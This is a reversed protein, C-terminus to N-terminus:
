MPRARLNQRGHGMDWTGYGSNSKSKLAHLQNVSKLRCGLISGHSVGASVIAIRPFGCFETGTYPVAAGPKAYPRAGVCPAMSEMAAIAFGTCLSSRETREPCM